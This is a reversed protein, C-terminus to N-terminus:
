NKKRNGFVIHGTPPTVNGATKNGFVIGGTSAETRQGFRIGTLPLPANSGSKGRQNLDFPWKIKNTPQRNRQHIWFEGAAQNLHGGYRDMIFEEMNLLCGILIVFYWIGYGQQAITWAGGSCVYTSSVHHNYPTIDAPFAGGEIQIGMSSGTLMLINEPVEFTFSWQWNNMLRGGNVYMRPFHYTVKFECPYLASSPNTTIPKWRDDRGQREKYFLEIYKKAESAQLKQLLAFENKLRTEYM